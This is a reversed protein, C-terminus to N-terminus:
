KTCRFTKRDKKIQSRLAFRGYPTEKFKAGKISKVKHFIVENGYYSLIQAIKKSRYTGKRENRAIRELLDIKGSRKENVIHIKDKPRWSIGFFEEATSCTFYFYQTKLFLETSRTLILLPKDIFWGRREENSPIYYIGKFPTPFLKLSAVLNFIKQPKFGEKLLQTYSIAQRPFM